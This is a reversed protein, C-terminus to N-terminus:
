ESQSHQQQKSDPPNTTKWQLPFQSNHCNCCLLMAPPPPLTIDASANL